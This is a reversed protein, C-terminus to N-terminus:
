RRVLRRLRNRWTPRELVLSTLTTEQKGLRQKYDADGALLDYTNFRASSYHQAAIAHAVFGPALRNDTEYLFGSQYNMVRAGHILNYLVAITQDGAKVEFLHACQPSADRLRQHFSIFHQNQFVSPLGRAEWSAKHLTEMRAWVADFADGPEIIRGKLAGREEYLRVSRNIKTQLSKSLCADFKGASLDCVYVPQEHLIRIQLNREVAAAQAAGTMEPRLNRFVFADNGTVVDIMKGVAESRIGSPAGEAVLFDAYEGYVADLAPDGFEQFWVERLGLVPPRKRAAAFVGLLLL